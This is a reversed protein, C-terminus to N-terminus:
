TLLRRDLIRVLSTFLYAREQTTQAKEFTNLTSDILNWGFDLKLNKADFGKSLKEIEELFPASEFVLQHDGYSEMKPTLHRRLGQAIFETSKKDKPVRGFFGEQVDILLKQTHEKVLKSVQRFQDNPLYIVAIGRERFFSAEHSNPATPSAIIVTQYEMKKTGSALYQTLAIPATDAIITNEMNPQCVSGGGAQIVSVQEVFELEKIREPLVYSPQKDTKTTSIPRAQFIYFINKQADFSWEIDMPYGYRKEIEQGIKALRHLQLTSLCATQAIKPPNQATTLTGEGSPRKRQDKKQIISHVFNKSVYFVDVPQTGTVVGEAHGPAASIQVIDKTNMAGEATFMVGSIPINNESKEGIMVQILVPMFPTTTIDDGSVIRQDLSKKSFYSAIVKAIAEAICQRQARVNPISENGGPNSLLMEDERGTSRVILTDQASVGELFKGLEEDLFDSNNKFSEEIGIRIKELIAEAANQDQRHTAKKFDSWLADFQPFARKIVQEIVTHSIGYFSPVRVNPMEKFIEQLRYLNAAKNGVKRAEKSTAVLDNLIRSTNGIVFDASTGKSAEEEGAKIIAEVEAAPAEQDLAQQKLIKFRQPLNTKLENVAQSKDCFFALSKGVIWAIGLFFEAFFVIAVLAVRIAIERIKGSCGTTQIPFFTQRLRENYSIFPKQLSKSIFM